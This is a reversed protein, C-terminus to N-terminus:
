TLWWSNIEPNERHQLLTPPENKELWLAAPRPALNYNSAMSLQYAGSAPIALLQGFQPRPLAAAAILQDGSECFKGVIRVPEAAIEGNPNDVIAASYAAAYLAHRPNDAMGGDVAAIIEGDLGEKVTGITYLAVGARGSIFRGSELSLKPLPLKHKRCIGVITNAVPRIWNELPNKPTEPTYRIGWGGGPSLEKLHIGTRLVLKYIEEIAAVYVDADFLLSGLHFHLGTLNLNPQMEVRRIANEADGNVVHFGFKSTRASTETHPHTEVRMDPTIRLWVRATKRLSEAVEGVMEIEDFNDVVVAHFDNEIALTLEEYSKNNGHIHIRDARFGHNLAIQAEAFSVVDLEVPEVSILECFKASFYAKAAYSVSAEGPYFDALASHISRINERVTAADYVYLPTKFDKALKHLSHGAIRISNDTVTTRIPFIDQLPLFPTDM